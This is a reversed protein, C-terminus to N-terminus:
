RWGPLAYAIAAAEAVDRAEINPEESDVALRKERWITRLRDAEAPTTHFEAPLKLNSALRRELREGNFIAAAEWAEPRGEIREWTREKEYCGFTLWRLRQGAEWRIYEFADVTKQFSLWIVQTGLDRALSALLAEPPHYDHWVVVAHTSQDYVTGESGVVKSVADLMELRRPPDLRVYFDTGRLMFVNPDPTPRHFAVAGGSPSPAIRTRGIIWAIFALGVVVIATWGALKVYSSRTNTAGPEGLGHLAIRSVADAEAGRRLSHIHERPDPHWFSQTLFYIAELQDIAATLEKRVDDGDPGIDM